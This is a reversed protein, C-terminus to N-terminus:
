VFVPIYQGDKITLQSVNVNVCCRVLKHITLQERVSITENTM